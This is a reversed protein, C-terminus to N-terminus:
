LGLIFTSSVGRLANCEASFSYVKLLVADPAGQLPANVQSKVKCCHTVQLDECDAGRRIFKHKNLIGLASILLCSIKM